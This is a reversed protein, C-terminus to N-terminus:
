QKFVCTQLWELYKGDVTDSKEALRLVSKPFMHLVVYWAIMFGTKISVIAVTPQMIANDAMCRATQNRRPVNRQLTDATGMETQITSFISSFVAATDRITIKEPRFRPPKGSATRCLAVSCYGCWRCPFLGGCPIEHRDVIFVFLFFFIHEQGWNLKSVRTLIENSTCHNAIPHKHVSVM